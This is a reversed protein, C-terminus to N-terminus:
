LDFPDAEEVDTRSMRRDAKVKNIAAKIAPKGAIEAKEDDSCASWKQMWAEVKKPDLLKFVDAIIADLGGGEGRRNWEGSELNGWIVLVEAYKEAATGGSKADGLKQAIGHRAAACPTYIEAPLTSCDGTFVSGNGYAITIVDGNFDIAQKKAMITEKVFPRRTPLTESIRRVRRWRVDTFELNNFILAKRKPIYSYYGFRGARAVFVQDV